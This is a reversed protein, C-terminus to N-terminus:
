MEGGLAQLHTQNTVTLCNLANKNNNQTLPYLGAVCTGSSGVEVLMGNGPRVDRSCLRAPLCCDSEQMDAPAHMAACLCCFCLSCFYLPLVCPPHFCLPSVIVHRCTVCGENQIGACPFSQTISQVSESAKQICGHCYYGSGIQPWGSTDAKPQLIHM